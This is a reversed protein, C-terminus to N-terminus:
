PTGASKDPQIWQKSADFYTKQTNSDLLFAIDDLLLWRPSRLRDPGDEGPEMSCGPMIPLAKRGQSM